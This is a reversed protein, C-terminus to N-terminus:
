HGWTGVRVGLSTWVVGMAIALCGLVLDHRPAAAVQWAVKRLSFGKMRAISHSAAARHILERGVVHFVLRVGVHALLKGTVMGVSESVRVGSFPCLILCHPTDLARQAAHEGLVLAVALFCVVIQLISELFSKTLLEKVKAPDELPNAPRFREPICTLKSLAVRHAGTGKISDLSEDVLSVLVFSLSAFPVTVLFVAQWCIPTPPFHFM